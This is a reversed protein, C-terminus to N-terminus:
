RSSPSIHQVIPNLLDPILREAALAEARRGLDTTVSKLNELKEVPGYNRL